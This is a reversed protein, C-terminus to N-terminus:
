SSRTNRHSHLDWEEPESVFGVNNHFFADSDETILVKNEKIVNESEVLM